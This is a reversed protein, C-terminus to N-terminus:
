WGPPFGGRSEIAQVSAIRRVPARARAPHRSRAPKLATESTAPVISATRPLQALAERPSRESAADAMIATPNAPPDITPLNTDFVVAAPWKQSSHIRIITKDVGTRAPEASLKPMYWDALFLLALLASGIFFFYRGLPM